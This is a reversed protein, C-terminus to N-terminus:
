NTLKHKTSTKWPRHILGYEESHIIIKDELFLQYTTRYKPHFIDKAPCSTTQKSLIALDANQCSDDNLAIRYGKIFLAANDLQKAKIQGNKKLWQRAAWSSSKGKIDFLGSKNRVLITRGNDSIILDPKPQIAFGLCLGVLIFCFGWSRAKTKILCLFCLGFAIISLGWGSFSPIPIEAFPFNAIKQAINTIIDLCYGASKIFLTELHFPMLLVGIFLLPMVCLSFLLSTMLNGVVGYPNFQNFHYAVFPSLALTILINATIATLFLHIGRIQSLHASVDEFLGVLIMVAIFSFQFSVSTIWEPRFLLIGFGVLLLSYLSIPKRNTLIGLFVLCIMMYSRIAPVQHGSIMLYFATVGMAVLAAIKKPSILITTKGMLALLGRILFFVFGALLTMHFGSVSLVHAIGAKRYIDYLDASVVQQEGTVLPIAIQAQSPSLHHRLRDMIATRWNDLFPTPGSQHNLIQQISGQATIGQYFFRLAQTASPPNLNGMFTITDNPHLKPTQNKFTARITQPNTPSDSITQLFITQGWQTSYSKTIQGTILQKKLPHQLFQTTIFHTRASALCLGLCLFLLFKLFTNQKWITLCFLVLTLCGLIWLSPETPLGFYTAIGFAFFVFCWLTQLQQKRGLNIEM